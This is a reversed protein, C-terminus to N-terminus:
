SAAMAATFSSSYNGKLINFVYMNIKLFLPLLDDKERKKSHTDKNKMM